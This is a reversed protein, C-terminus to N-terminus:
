RNIASRVPQCVTCRGLIADRYNDCNHSTEAPTTQARTLEFSAPPTNYNYSPYGITAGRQLTYDQLPSGGPHNSQSYQDTPPSNHYYSNANTNYDIPDAFIYNPEQPPTSPYGTNQVQPNCAQYPPQNQNPDPHAGAQHHTPHTDTPMGQHPHFPVAPGHSAMFPSQEQPHNQFYSGNQGYQQSFDMQALQPLPKSPRKVFTRPDYRLDEEQVGGRDSFAQVAAVKTKAISWTSFNM